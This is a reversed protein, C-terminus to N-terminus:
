EAPTLRGQRTRLSEASQRVIDSIQLLQSALPSTRRWIM